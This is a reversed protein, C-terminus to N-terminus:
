VHSGNYEEIWHKLSSGKKKFFAKATEVYSMCRKKISKFQLGKESAQIRQTTLEEIEIKKKPNLSM